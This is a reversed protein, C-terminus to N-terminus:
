KPSWERGPWMSDTELNAVEDETDRFDLINKKQNGSIYANERLLM